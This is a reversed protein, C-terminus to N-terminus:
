RCTRTGNTFSVLKVLFNGPGDGRCSRDIPFTRWREREVAADVVPDPALEIAPLVRDGLYPLEIVRASAPLKRLDVVPWTPILERVDYTHRDPDPREPLATGVVLDVDHNRLQEITAIKVHGPYYHAAPLGHKAIDPETLGIMDVVRLGSGYSIAGLTSTAIVPRDAPDGSTFWRRLDHGLGLQTAPQVADDLSAISTVPIVPNPAWRHAASIVLLSAILLRSWRTVPDIVVAGIMALYPMVPVMFRFEMFDAGVWCIYVFWAACIAAAPWLARMRARDRWTARLRPILLFVGYSLFFGALYVLGYTIRATVPAGAKAVYTNPTLTGYFQYKWVLWPVLVALATAAAVLVLGLTRRPSAQRDSPRVASVAAVVVLAVVLVVSDLRTLLAAAGLVGAGAWRHWGEAAGGAAPLLLAAVGLLLATQTMTEMGGTAYALFTMNACLVALALLRLGRTPLFRRGLHHALTVAVVFSALGLVQGFGVTPWGLREPIALLVTWLFNTYGEVREGPIFVLGHGHALNRAFRYTIFADDQDFRVFWAVVTAVGIIWLHLRGHFRDDLRELGASLTPRRRTGTASGASDSGDSRGASGPTRVAATM